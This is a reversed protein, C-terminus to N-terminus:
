MHRSYHVQFGNMLSSSKCNKIRIYQFYALLIKQGQVSQGEPRKKLKYM